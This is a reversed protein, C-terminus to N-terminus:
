LDLALYKTELFAEMGEQGGERGLGSQKVGGFPAAPDSVMGKNIAVMGSELARAVGMARRLDRSFVYAVLGFATANARLVAEEPEAFRMVPAIPGFVEGEVLEGGDGGALVTPTFFWGTRAPAAGGTVIAAGRARAAEVVAAMKAQAEQNIMPGVESEPELGPGVRLAAMAAALRELFRAHVGAQVYIRNASTCAQGGNRMKARMTEAVALDLDADDFVLLPADGGLEMSCNVVREAALALLTRGVATSGTFSLKRVAACGLLAQAISGARSSPLVNVVGPPAGCDQAIRAIALATLPTASAPKLVVTCGAALAPALKRAAMAAPFNWPTILVCVGVPQKLTLLDGVGKPASLHMGRARVAEESFWRFFEAAYEVEARADRLTKGNERVILRALPERAAEMASFIRRLLEGRERPPMRAWGPGAAAAAEVAARADAEDADAVQALEAGTAPDNVAFRRLAERWEGGILLGKPVAEVEDPLPNQM